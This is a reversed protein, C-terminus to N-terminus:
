SDEPRGRQGCRRGLGRKRVTSAEALLFKEGKRLCAHERDRDFVAGSRKGEGSDGSSGYGEM